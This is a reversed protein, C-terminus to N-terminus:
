WLLFKSINYEYIDYLFDELHLFMRLYRKPIEFEYYFILFAVQNQCSINKEVKEELQVSITPCITEERAIPCEHFPIPSSEAVPNPVSPLDSSVVELIPDVVPLSEHVISRMKYDIIIPEMFKKSIAGDIRDIKALIRSRNFVPGRTRLVEDSFWRKPDFSSHEFSSFYAMDRCKLKELRKRRVFSCFISYIEPFWYNVGRASLFQEVETKFIKIIIDGDEQSWWDFLFDNHKRLTWNWTQCLVDDFNQLTGDGMEFLFDPVFLPFKIKGVGEGKPYSSIPFIFNGRDVIGMQIPNKLDTM